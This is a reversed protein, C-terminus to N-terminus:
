RAEDHKKGGFELQVEFRKRWEIVVDLIGGDTKRVLYGYCHHVPRCRAMRAAFMWFSYLLPCSHNKNEGDFQFRTTDFKASITKYNGNNSESYWGM